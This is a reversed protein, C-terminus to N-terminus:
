TVDRESLERGLCRTSAAPVNHALLCAIWEHRRALPMPLRATRLSVHSLLSLAEEAQHPTLLSLPPKPLSASPFRGLWTEPRAGIRFGDFTADHSHQEEQVIRKRARAEGDCAKDSGRLAWAAREFMPARGGGGGAGNTRRPM